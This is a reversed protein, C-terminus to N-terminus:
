KNKKPNKPQKNGSSNGLPGPLNLRQREKAEEYTPYNTKTYHDKKLEDAITRDNVWKDHDPKPTAKYDSPKPKPPDPLYSPQRVVVNPDYRSAALRAQYQDYLRKNTERVSELEENYKKDVADNHKKDAAEIKDCERKYSTELAETAKARNEKEEKAQENSVFADYTAKEANVSIDALARARHEYLEKTSLKSDAGLEIPKGSGIQYNTNGGADVYKQWQEDIENRRKAEIESLRKRESQEESRKDELAKLEQGEKTNDMVKASTLKKMIDRRAEILDLDKSKGKGRGWEGNVKAETIRKINKSNQLQKAAGAVTLPSRRQWKSAGAEVMSEYAEDRLDERVEAKTRKNKIRNAEKSREAEHSSQKDLIRRNKLKNQVKAVAVERIGAATGQTVGQLLGEQMAEKMRRRFSTKERGGLVRANNELALRNRIRDVQDESLKGYRLRGERAEQTYKEMKRENRAYKREMRDNIRDRKEASRLMRQEQKYAREDAKEYRRLADLNHLNETIAIRRQAKEVAKNFKNEQRRQKNIAHQARTNKIATKVSKVTKRLKGEAKKYALSKPGVFIHQGWKMGLRGYHLLENPDETVAYYKM